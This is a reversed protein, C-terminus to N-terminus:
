KMWPKMLIEMTMADQEKLTVLYIVILKPFSGSYGIFSGFCMIYLWTMIYTHKNSFIVVQKRVREKASKPTLYWLVLHELVACLLVLLFKQAVQGGPTSMMKTDRSFILVIMGVAAALIAFVEMWYFNILNRVASNSGHTPQNSMWFFAAILSPLCLSFWLWGANAPWGEVGIASIPSKGFAESMVIPALLQSISVGLNGIGGNMGLAYGQLKKPYFFNINSMSSAFAGGGVGSLLAAILLVNFPCDNYQLAAGALIMPICLLITTNYVVNRGGSVQTMFSNPIRLTGGSLGTIGPLLFLNAKYDSGTPTGWDAFPYVNPDKDHMKQIKTVIVSWVLWVGFACSLNPISAILNRTAIGKGVKNWQDENEPDWHSLRVQPM